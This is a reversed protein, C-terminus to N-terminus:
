VLAASILLRCIEAEQTDPAGSNGNWEAPLRRVLLVTGLYVISQASRSELRVRATM